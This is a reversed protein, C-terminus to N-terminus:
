KDLIRKYPKGKEPVMILLERRPLKEWNIPAVQLLIGSLNYIKLVQPTQEEITEVAVDTDGDQSVGITKTIGGGSITVTATRSSTSTNASATVSVTGNNSGSGLSVSAWSESSSATWSVNSTIAVNQSGSGTGFSLSAPSVTLSSTPTAANVTISLSKTDTGGANTAKVTFTSTGTASPNGSIANGSLSLGAPLSGSQISWTIPADGTASLTASYATGVQGNPLSGTTIGPPTAPPNTVTVACTATFNGDTTTVTITASGASVFSVSGGSVTAVNSNSTTWSVSKDTANSPTVNATLTVSADGVQKTLSTQNLSVGTVNVSSSPPNGVKIETSEGGYIVTITGISNPTYYWEVIVGSPVNWKPKNPYDKHEIVVIKEGKVCTLNSSGWDGENIELASLHTSMMALIAIVMFVFHRKKTMNIDEEM